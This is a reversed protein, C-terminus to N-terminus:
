SLRACRRFTEHKTSKSKSFYFKQNYERGRQKEEGPDWPVLLFLRTSELELCNMIICARWDGLSFPIPKNMKLNLVEWTGMRNLVKVDCVYVSMKFKIKKKLTSVYIRICWIVWLSLLQDSCLVHVQLSNLLRTTQEPGKKNSYKYNLISFLIAKQTKFRIPRLLIYLYVIFISQQKSKNENKYRQCHSKWNYSECFNQMDCKKMRYFEVMWFCYVCKFIDWSEYSPFPMFHM